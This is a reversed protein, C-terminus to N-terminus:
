VCVKVRSFFYSPMSVGNEDPNPRELGFRLWRAHRHVLGYGPPKRPQRTVGGEEGYGIVSNIFVDHMFM